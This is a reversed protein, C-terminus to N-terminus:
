DARPLAKADESLLRHMRGALIARLALRDFDAPPRASPDKRAPTKKVQWPIYAAAARKLKRWGRRPGQRQSSVLRERVYEIFEAPLVARIRATSLEASLFEVARPSKLIDQPSQTASYRAFRVPPSLSQAISRLLTKNTRLRDPLKRVEAIVSNSLLPSVIEVYPLKLDSLAALVVPVRFQQQLRDRWTEMSEERQQRLPQPLEQPEFGFTALPPLGEFDEWLPMGASARADAPSAVTKRGFVQDGRIIGRVGDEYLTKWIRFGDAYGSIHDIRGEGCVIFRDIITDLPEESLDTEYYRHQLGLHRALDRAVNADNNREELAARTGWTVTTLGSIDPLLCLLTRCDIGGSLPFVVRSDGAVTPHVARRLASLVRHRHEDDTAAIDSFPLAATTKSTAWSKRDLVVSSSADVCRIRSDWSHAPGLTGSSLMWPIASTNPAFSRALSVLARQSTSAAFLHEDHFYWLTRSGLTDTLLEVHREDTRILAYAGDPRGGLPRAWGDAEILHGLCVSGHEIRVLESPSAICITVGNVDIIRPAASEVNDPALRGAIIRSAQALRAAAEPRRACAYILKSM